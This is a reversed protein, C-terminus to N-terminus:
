TRGGLRNLVSGTLVKGITANPDIIVLQLIDDEQVSSEMLTDDENLLVRQRLLHYSIRENGNDTPLHLDNILVEVVEVVKNTLDLKVRRSDKVGDRLYQVTLNVPIM